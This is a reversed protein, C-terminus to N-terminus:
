KKNTDIIVPPIYSETEYPLEKAKLKKEVLTKVLSYIVAFLPAGILMGFLGFYGGM